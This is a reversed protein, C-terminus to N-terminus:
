SFDLANHPLRHNHTGDILTPTISCIRLACMMVDVRLRIMPAVNQVQGGVNTM